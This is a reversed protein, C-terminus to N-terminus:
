MGSGEGLHSAGEERCGDQYLVVVGHEDLTKEGGSVSVRQPAECFYFGRSHRGEVADSFFADSVGQVGAKGGGIDVRKELIQGNIGYRLCQPVENVIGGAAM